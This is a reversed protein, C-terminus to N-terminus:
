EGGYINEAIEIIKKLKYSIGSKSIGDNLIETLELLSAERNDRRAKAVSVLNPPLNELGITADIVEIAYLQKLSASITKDINASICNSERNIKNRVERNVMASQIRLVAKNAGMLALFDSIMEGEKLYVLFGDRKEIKKPLIGFEAMLHSIAQAQNNSSFFIEFHYGGFKRTKQNIPNDGDNSCPISVLGASVFAGKLYSIKCDDEIVLHHDLKQSISRINNDTILIGCDRLVEEGLGVPLSFEFKQNKGTKKTMVVIDRLKSTYLKNILRKTFDILEISDAAVSFTMGKQMVVISGITQIISALYARAVSDDDPFSLLIEKKVENSFSM